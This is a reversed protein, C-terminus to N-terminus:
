RPFHTFVGDFKALDEAPFEQLAPFAKRADDATFFSIADVGQGTGLLIVSVGNFTESLYATEVPQHKHAIEQEYADSLRPIIGLPSARVDGEIVASVYYVPINASRSCRRIRKLFNM